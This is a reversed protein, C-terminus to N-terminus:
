AGGCSDRARRLLHGVRIRDARLVVAAGVLGVHVEGHLEGVPGAKRLALALCLLAAMQEAEAKGIVDFGRDARRALAGVDLHAGFALDIDHDARLRAALPVLRAKGLDGGVQQMHRDLADVDDHAVGVHHTGAAARM